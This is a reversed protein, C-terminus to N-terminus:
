DSSLANVFSFTRRRKKGNDFNKIYGEIHADIDNVTRINSPLIKLLVKDIGEPTSNPRSTVSVFPSNKGFRRRLIKQQAESVQLLHNRNKFRMEVTVAFAEELYKDLPILGAKYQRALVKHYKSFYKGTILSQLGINTVISQAERIDEPSGYVHNLSSDLPSNAHALEHVIVGAHQEKRMTDMYMDNFRMTHDLLHFGGLMIVPSAGTAGALDILRNVAKVNVLPLGTAEMNKRLWAEEGGFSDFPINASSHKSDLTSQSEHKM